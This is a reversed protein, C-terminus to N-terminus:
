RIEKPFVKYITTGNAIDAWSNVNFEIVVFGCTPVNKVYINGFTNVFDTVAFNHGFIMLSNISNDCQKVQQILDLGSFDYLQSKYFIKETDLNWNKIFYNATLRTRNATSCLVREPNEFINKTHKSLLDADNNGRTKLPRDHDKLNYKWSSKAHRIVFLRKM